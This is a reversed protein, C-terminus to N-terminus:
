TWKPVVFGANDCGAAESTLERVVRNWLAVQGTLDKINARIVQKDGVSYQLAKRAATLATQSAALHAEAEALTVGAM